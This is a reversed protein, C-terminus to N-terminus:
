APRVSHPRCVSEGPLAHLMRGVRPLAVHGFKAECDNVGFTLLLKEGSADAVMGSVFQASECDGADQASGICFEGTTGTMRYPPRDQLTYFFHTYLYGFQFRQQLHHGNVGAIPKVAKKRCFGHPGSAICVWNNQHGDARHLHGVGLLASCPRGDPDTGQVAVLHTTSSLRKGGLGERLFGLSQNTRLELEVNRKAEQKTQKIEDMQIFTGAAHTGCTAYNGLQVARKSGSASLAPPAGRSASVLAARARQTRRWIKISVNPQCVYRKRHFDMRKFSGVKGLRYPVCARPSASLLDLHSVLELLSSVM